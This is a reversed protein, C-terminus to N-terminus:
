SFYKMEKTGEEHAINFHIYDLHSQGLNRFEEPLSSLPSGTFSNGTFSITEFIKM